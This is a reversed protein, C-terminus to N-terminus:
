RRAASLLHMKESLIGVGILADHGTMEPAMEIVRETCLRLGHSISRLHEKKRAAM